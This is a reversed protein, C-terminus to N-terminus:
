RSVAVAACLGITRCATGLVRGKWTFSVLEEKCVQPSSPTRQFCIVFSSCCIKLEYLGVEHFRGYNRAITYPQLSPGDGHLRFDIQNSMGQTRHNVSCYFGASFSLFLIQHAIEGRGGAKTKWVPEGRGM